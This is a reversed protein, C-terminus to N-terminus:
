SRWFHRQFRQMCSLFLLLPNNPGPTISNVLAFLSAALFLEHTM